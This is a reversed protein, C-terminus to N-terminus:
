SMAAPERPALLGGLVVGGTAIVFVAMSARLSIAEAVWGLLPPSWIFGTYGVTTVAAISISADKGTRGALGFAAPTASSLMFGLIVFGIGVVLPSETLIALVGGIAAGVGSILITARQGLGFLVRGAFLRGLVVAGAFGVFTIAAVGATVGLEDRLYLGAWADMGGEIMFAALVVVAPAWLAPTHLLAAIPHTPGAAPSRRVHSLRASTWMSTAFMVCAAYTLGIRFDLGAMRIAGAFLAGTVSGFAYSAHMWQLVPKATRTETQQAAVNLFVDILGNGIGVMVFGILIASTPLYALAITSIALTALSLPVTTSSALGRLRPALGLMVAVAVASLIMYDLGIGADSVGHTRQFEFVLITWAGWYQGFSWYGGLLPAVERNAAGSAAGDSPAARARAM